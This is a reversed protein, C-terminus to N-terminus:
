EPIFYLGHRGGGERGALCAPKGGQVGEFEQVGRRVLSELHERAEGAVHQVGGDGGDREDVGLTRPELRDAAQRGGLHRAVGREAGM